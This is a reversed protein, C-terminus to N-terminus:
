KLLEKQWASTLRLQRAGSLKLFQERTLKHKEWLWRVFAERHGM